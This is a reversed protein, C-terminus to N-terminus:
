DIPDTAATMDALALSVRRDFESIPVLAGFLEKRIRILEIQAYQLAMTAAHRQRDDYRSPDWSM